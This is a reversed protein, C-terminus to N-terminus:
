IVDAFAAKTRMFFAYGLIMGIFCALLAILYRGWMPAIGWLVANRAQDIVMALPNYLVIPLLNPPVKAISYFIASAYMIIIMVVPVAANIDRIFVGLSSLFWSLGLCLLVLPLLILPLYLATLPISGHAVWLGIFLPLLSILLHTFAAATASVSLIELPFVVKTVYNANSLVLTPARSLCEAFFDFLVLGCFLALTFDLKSENAHNGLKSEFIYGFVVTYVALMFLPRLLSWFIGLFSGRYRSLVDRKTLQRILDGRERLHRVIRWPLLLQLWPIKKNASYTAHLISGYV